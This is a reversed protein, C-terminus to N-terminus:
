LTRTPPRFSSQFSTRQAQHYSQIANWLAPRCEYFRIRQRKCVRDAMKIYVSSQSQFGQNTSVDMDKFLWLLISWLSLNASRLTPYLSLLSRILIKKDIDVNDKSMKQRVRHFANTTFSSILNLRNMIVERTRHDPNSQDQSLTPHIRLLSICLDILNSQRKIYHTEHDDLVEQSSIWTLVQANEPTWQLAYPLNLGTPDSLRSPGNGVQSPAMVKALNIIPAFNPAPIAFTSQFARGEKGTAWAEDMLDEEPLYPKDNIPSAFSSISSLSSVSSVSSSRGRGPKRIDKKSDLSAVLLHPYAEYLLDSLSTLGHAPQVLHPGYYYLLLQQPYQVHITYDFLTKRDHLLPCIAHVIHLPPVPLSPNSPRSDFHMTTKFRKPCVEHYSNLKHYFLFANLAKALVARDLPFDSNKSPPAKRTFADFLNHIIRTLDLTSPTDPGDQPMHILSQPHSSSSSQVQPDSDTQPSSKFIGLWSSTPSLSSSGGNEKFPYVGKSPLEKTPNSLSPYPLAILLHVTAALFLSSSPYIM